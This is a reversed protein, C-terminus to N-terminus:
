RCGIHGGIPLLSSLTLAEVTKKKKKELEQSLVRDLTYRTSKPAIFQRNVSKYSTQKRGFFGFSAFVPAASRTLYGFAVDRSEGSVLSRGKLNAARADFSVGTDSEKGCCIWNEDNTPM